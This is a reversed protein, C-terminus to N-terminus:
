INMSLKGEGSFCAGKFPKIGKENFVVISLFFFICVIQAGLTVLSFFLFGFKGCSGMSSMPNKMGSFFSTQSSIPSSSINYPAGSSMVEDKTHISTDNNSTSHTYSPIEYSSVVPTPPYYPSATTTPISDGYTNYSTSNSYSNYTPSSNDNYGNNNNNSNNNNSNNYNSNNNNNSNNYM